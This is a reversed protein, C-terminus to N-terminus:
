SAIKELTAIAERQPHAELFHRCATSVMAQVTMGNAAALISLSRHLDLPVRVPLSNDNNLKM